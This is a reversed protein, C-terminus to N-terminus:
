FFPKNINRVHAAPSTDTVPNNIFSFYTLETLGKVASIDTIQNDDAFFFGLTKLNAVSSIDRIENDSLFLETLQTMGKIASIDSIRNKNLWLHQMSTLQSLPSIDTIRNNYIYLFKLDTLGSLPSIDAIDNCYLGITELTKLNTIGSIDTISNYSVILKRLSTFYKLDDLNKISGRDTYVEGGIEYSDTHNTSEISEDIAAHTGGMIKLTHISELESSKFQESPSKNLAKRMMVEFQPESFTVVVDPKASPATDAVPLPNGQEDITDAPGYKEVLADLSKQIDPNGGTLELAATLEEM